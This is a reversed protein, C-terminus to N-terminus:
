DEAVSFRIRVVANTSKSHEQLDMKFTKYAIQKNEQCPQRLSALAVESSAFERVDARVSSNMQDVIELLRAAFKRPFQRSFVIYRQWKATGELVGGNVVCALKETADAKFLEVRERREDLYDITLTAPKVAHPSALTGIRTLRAAFLQQAKLAPLARLRAFRRYSGTEPNLRSNALRKSWTKLNSDRWNITFENGEWLFCDLRTDVPKITDMWNRKSMTGQLLFIDDTKGQQLDCVQSIVVQVPISTTKPPNAMLGEFASHEAVIDGLQLKEAANPMTMGEAKILVDNVFTVAQSILNVSVQPLFHAPPMEVFSITNVKETAQRLENSGELRYRLIDNYAELLYVGLPMKEVELRYKALYAYDSLDLAKLDKKITERVSKLAEDWTDIMHGLTNANNLPALLERLVTGIADERKFEEKSLVRFKAGMLGARNRLDEAMSELQEGTKSSMIVVVPRDRDGIDKLLEKIKDVAEDRASDNDTIGLFLDLFVVKTDAPLNKSERGAKAVTLGLDNKLFDILPAIAARKSEVDADYSGFASKAVDVPLRGQVKMAWLTALFEEYTVAAEWDDAEFGAKILVANLEAAVERDLSDLLDPLNDDLTGFLQSFEPKKDYADDLVFAKTFHHENLLSKVSETTSM